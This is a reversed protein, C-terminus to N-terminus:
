KGLYKKSALEILTMSKIALRYKFLICSNNSINNYLIKIKGLM